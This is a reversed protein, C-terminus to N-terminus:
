RPRWARVWDVQMSFPLKPKAVDAANVGSGPRADPRKLRYTEWDSSLLSIVLFYNAPALNVKLERTLRGDLRFRVSRRDWEVSVTHWADWWAPDAVLKSAVYADKGDAPMKIGKVHIVNTVGRGHGFTEIMDLEQGADSQLWVSAHAGPTRPFKVRAAVIGSSVTFRGQTSVMANDFVGQPCGVVKEGARAQKGRASAAVRTSVAKSAKSMTLRVTGKRVAVNAKRPASCWRGGADYVDTLRYDWPRKLSGGDFGTDLVGSWQDGAKATPTAVPKAAGSAALAVARYSDGAGPVLFEAAGSGSMPTVALQEWSSGARRQLAVPRRSARDAAAFSARVLTSGGYDVPAVALGAGTGLPVKGTPTSSSATATPTPITSPAASSVSPDPNSPTPTPTPQGTCAALLVGATLWTATARISL